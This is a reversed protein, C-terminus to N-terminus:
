RMTRLQEEVRKIEDLWPARNRDGTLRDVLKRM